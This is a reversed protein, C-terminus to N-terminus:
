ACDGEDILTDQTVSFTRGSDSTAEICFDDGSVLIDIATGTVAATNSYGYDALDALSNTFAGDNETSWLMLAKKALNLDSVAQADKASDQQGLFMPVAIAALTGIILIVVLLEILTFGREADRSKERM